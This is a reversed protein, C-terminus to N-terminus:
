KWVSELNTAKQYDPNGLHAAALIREPLEDDTVAELLWILNVSYNNYGQIVALIGKAIYSADTEIDVEFYNPGHFYRNKVKTGIICPKTPVCNRVLWPGQVISPILKMRNDRDADSARVFEEWLKDVRECGTSGRENFIYYQVLHVSLATIQINIILFKWKKFQPPCARNLWCNKHSGVDDTRDEIRFFDFHTLRLLPPAGNPVKLGTSLYTKSRIMMDAIDPEYWYGWMEQQRNSIKKPRSTKPDLNRIFKTVIRTQRKFPQVEIDQKKDEDASTQKLCIRSPASLSKQRTTVREIQVIDPQQFADSSSLCVSKSRLIKGCGAFEDKSDIDKIGSMKNM